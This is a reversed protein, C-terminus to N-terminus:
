VQFPIAKLAGGQVSLVELHDIPQGLLQPMQSGTLILPQWRRPSSNAPMAWATTSILVTALLPGILSKMGGQKTRIRWCAPSDPNEDGTEGVVSSLCRRKTEQADSRSLSLALPLSLCLFLAVRILSATQKAPHQLWAYDFRGLGCRKRHRVM